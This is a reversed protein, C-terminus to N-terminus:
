TLPVIGRFLPDVRLILHKTLDHGKHMAILRKRKAYHLRAQIYKYLYLQHGAVYMHLFLQGSRICGFHIRLVFKIVVM